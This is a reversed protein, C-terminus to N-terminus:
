GDDNELNFYHCVDCVLFGTSEDEWYEYVSNFPGVMDCKSCSCVDGSPIGDKPMIKHPHLYTGFLSNM